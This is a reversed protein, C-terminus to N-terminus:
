DVRKWGKEEAGKICSDKTAMGALGGMPSGCWVEQGDPGRYKVTQGGSGCAATCALIAVTLLIMRM